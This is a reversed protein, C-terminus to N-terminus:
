QKKKVTYHASMNLRWRINILKEFFQMSYYFTREYTEQSSWVRERDTFCCRISWLAFIRCTDVMWFVQSSFSKIDILIETAHNEFPYAMTLHKTKSPLTKQHYQISLRLLIWYSTIRKWALVKQLKQNQCIKSNCEEYWTQCWYSHYQRCTRSVYILTESHPATWIRGDVDVMRHLLFQRQNMHQRCTPSIVYLKLYDSAIIPSRKCRLCRKLYRNHFRPLFSFPVGIFRTQRVSCSPTINPGFPSTCVNVIFANLSHSELTHNKVSTM